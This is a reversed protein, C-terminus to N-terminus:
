TSHRPLPRCDLHKLVQAGKAIGQIRNIRSVHSSRRTFNLAEFFAETSPGTGKRRQLEGGLAVVGATM